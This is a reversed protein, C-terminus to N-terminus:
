PPSGDHRLGFKIIEPRGTAARAIRLAAMGAETGSNVKGLCPRHFQRRRSDEKRRPRLPSDFNQLFTEDCHSKSV